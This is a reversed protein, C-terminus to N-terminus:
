KDIFKTPENNSFKSNFAFVANDVWDIGTIKAPEFKNRAIRVSIEVSFSIIIDTTISM